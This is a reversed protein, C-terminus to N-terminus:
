VGCSVSTVDQGLVRAIVAHAAEHIATAMELEHREDDM